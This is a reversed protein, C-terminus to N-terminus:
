GSEPQVADLCNTVEVTKRWSSLVEGLLEVLTEFFASVVVGGPVHLEEELPDVAFRDDDYSM